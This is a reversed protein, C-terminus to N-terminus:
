QTGSGFLKSWAWARMKVGDLMMLFPLVTLALGLLQWLLMVWHHGQHYGYIIPPLTAVIVIVM